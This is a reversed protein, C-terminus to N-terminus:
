KKARRRLGLGGLLALGGGLLGLSMPEPVAPAFGAVNISTDDQISVNGATWGPANTEIVLYETANAPQIDGPSDFVFDLTFGTSTRDIGNPLSSGWTTGNVSTATGVDTRFSDFSGTTVHEVVDSSVDSNNVTIIFDMCRACFVNGPDSYVSDTYSVSLLHGAADHGSGSGSVTAELTLGTMTGFNDGSGSIQQGASIETGYVPLLGAVLGAALFMAIKKM